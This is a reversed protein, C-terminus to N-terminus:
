IEKVNVLVADEELRPCATNVWAGIFPFNELQNIDIQDAVFYYFKKDKFKKELQEINKIPYNQGRKTSILVGINKANLFKLMAGKKRKQYNEVISKDQKKINGDFPDLLYVDKGLLGLAIAHFHGTGIYLFADVKNKIREASSVDCGLIQGPYKQKAKEFFVKKNKLQKKIDDLCDAFQVTTALGIKNPLQEIDLKKINVKGTYKSEIFLQEM